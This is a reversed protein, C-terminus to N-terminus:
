QNSLGARSIMGSIFTKSEPFLEQERTFAEMASSLEGKNAYLVGIHAYIGPAVTLGKAEARQIDETLKLIQTETDAQGPEVYIDYLIQEYHGWYYLERPGSACGALLLLALSTFMLFAKNM